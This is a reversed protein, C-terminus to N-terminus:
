PQLQFAGRISLDAFWCLLGRHRQLVKAKHQDILGGHHVACQQADSQLAGMREFRPQNKDTIWSLQRWNTLVGTRHKRHLPGTSCRQLLHHAVLPRHKLEGATQPISSKGTLVRGRQRRNAVVSPLHPTQGLFVPQILGALCKPLGRKLVVWIGGPDETVGVAGKLAQNGQSPPGDM